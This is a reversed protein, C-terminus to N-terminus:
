ICGQGQKFRQKLLQTAETINQFGFHTNFARLMICLIHTVVKLLLYNTSTSFGLMINKKKKAQLLGYSEM